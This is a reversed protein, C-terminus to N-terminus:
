RAAPHPRDRVVADAWDWLASPGALRYLMGSGEAQGFLCGDLAGTQELKRWLADTHRQVNQRFCVVAATAKRAVRLGYRLGRADLRVFLQAEERNGRASRRAFAIWLTTTYPDGRGYANRCVSTLAQGTRAETILRWGHTGQLVPEVYRRALAQCLEVLPERVAFRYRERNAEM